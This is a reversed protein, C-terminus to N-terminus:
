ADAIPIDGDTCHVICTSNINLKWSTDKTIINWKEITNNYYIHVLQSCNKCMYKRFTTVTSPLYLTNLKSCGEFIGTNLFDKRSEELITIGEPIKLETLSTCKYFCGGGLFTLTSPLSIQTLSQCYAFCSESIKTIGELLNITNLATCQAFCSIPLERLSTPLIVTTLRKNLTFCRIGLSTVKNPITIKSIGTNEFAESRISTVTDPIVITNLATCNEFCDDPIETLNCPLVIEKLSYCDGFCTHELSLCSDPITISELSSCKYFARDKIGLLTNPLNLTGLNSCERFACTGIYQIGNVVISNKCGNTLTNTATEIVANCNNRSDYILNDPHVHIEELNICAQLSSWDISEVTEPIFIKTIKTNWFCDIGFKTVSNDFELIGIQSDFTNNIFNAGFDYESPNVKYAAAYEIYNNPLWNHSNSNIKTSGFIFHRRLM